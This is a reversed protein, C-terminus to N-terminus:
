QQEGEGTRIMRMPRRQHMYIIHLVIQTVLCYSFLFSCLVAQRMAGAGERQQKWWVTKQSSSNSSSSNNNAGSKKAATSSSGPHMWESIIIGHMLNKNSKRERGRMLDANLFWGDITSPFYQHSARERAIRKICLFIYEFKENSISQSKWDIEYSADRLQGNATSILHTKTPAPASVCDM